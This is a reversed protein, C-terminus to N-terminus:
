DRERNIDNLKIENHYSKLMRFISDTIVTYDNFFIISDLCKKYSNNLMLQPLEGNKIKRGEFDIDYRLYSPPLICEYKPETYNQQNLKNECFVNYNIYKDNIKISETKDKFKNKFELLFFLNSNNLFKIKSGENKLKDYEIFEYVYLNKFEAKIKEPVNSSDFSDFFRKKSQFYAYEVDKNKTIEYCIGDNDKKLELIKEKEEYVNGSIKVYNKFDTLVAGIKKGEIFNFINILGDEARNYIGEYNEM